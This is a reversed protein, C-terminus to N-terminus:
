PLEVHDCHGPNVCMTKRELILEHANETIYLRSGSRSKPPKGGEVSGDPAKAAALAGDTVASPPAM